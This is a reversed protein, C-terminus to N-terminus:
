GVRGQVRALRGKDLLYPYTNSENPSSSALEFFYLLQPRFRACCQLCDENMLEIMDIM